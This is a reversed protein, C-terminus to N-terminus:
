LQQSQIRLHVTSMTFQVTQAVIGRQKLRYEAEIMLYPWISTTQTCNRVSYAFTCRRMNQVFYVTPVRLKEM